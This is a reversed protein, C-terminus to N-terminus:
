VLYKRWLELFYKQFKLGVSESYIVVSAENNEDIASYTWNTSGVVVIRSDVIILKDHTTIERSDYKVTIDFKSLYDGTQKNQYALDGNGGSELLIRVEVGRKRADILASLLRAEHALPYEPYHAMSFMIIYITKRAETFVSHVKDFYLRNPITEVIIDETPAPTILTLTLLRTKLDLNEQSLKKNKELVTKVTEQLEDVRQQPAITESVKKESYSHYLAMGSLGGVILGVIFVGVWRRM